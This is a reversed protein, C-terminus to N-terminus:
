SGSNLYQRAVTLQESLDNDRESAIAADLYPGFERWRLLFIALAASRREEIDSSELGECLVRHTIYDYDETEGLGLRSLATRRSPVGREACERLETVPITPLRRRLAQYITNYGYSVSLFPSAYVAPIIKDEVLSVQGVNADKWVQTTVGPGTQEDAARRFDFDLKENAETCAADVALTSEESREDLRLILRFNVQTM